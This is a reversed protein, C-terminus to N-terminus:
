ELGILPFFFLLPRVMYRSAFTAFCSVLVFVIGAIATSNTNGAGMSIDLIWQFSLLIGM